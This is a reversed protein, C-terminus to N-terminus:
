KKLIQLIANNFHLYSLEEPPTPIPREIAVPIIDPSQGPNRKQLELAYQWERKVWESSKSANSWFLFFVDCKEINKYLEQEWRQGPELELVDQFFSIKSAQLMQTRRLVEDRDPSAYSIFAFHYSNAEVKATQSSNEADSVLDIKFKLVGAPVNDVFVNLKALASSAQFDEPVDVWFEVSSPEGWWTLMQSPEDIDWGAISLLFQISQKPKVRLNLPKVARKALDPNLEKVLDDVVTAHEQLHAFVEILFSESRHAKAPAYATCHVLDGEEAQAAQTESPIIVLKSADPKSPVDGLEYVAGELLDNIEKQKEEDNTLEPLQSLNSASPALPKKMMPPPPMEEESDEASKTRELTKKTKPSPALKKKQNVTSQPYEDLMKDLSQIISTDKSEPSRFSQKKEENPLAGGIYGYGKSASKHPRDYEEEDAFDPDIESFKKTKRNKKKILFFLAVVLASGILIIYFYAM